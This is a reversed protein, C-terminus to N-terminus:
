QQKEVMICAFQSELKRSVNTENRNKEKDIVIWYRYLFFYKPGKQSKELWWIKFVFDPIKTWDPFIEM